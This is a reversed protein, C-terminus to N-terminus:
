RRKKPKDVVFDFHNKEGAVVTASLPTDSLNTFRRAVQHQLNPYGKTVSLTVRYDGALAGGDSQELTWLQFSGDTEINSSAGKGEMSNTPVFTITAMEGHPISGDEFNVTGTVRHLDMRKSCGGLLLLLTAFFFGFPKM